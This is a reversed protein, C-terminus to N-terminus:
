HRQLSKEDDESGNQGEDQHKKNWFTSAAEAEQIAIIIWFVLYITKM